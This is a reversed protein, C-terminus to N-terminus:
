KCPLYVDRQKHILPCGGLSPCLLECSTRPGKVFFQSIRKFEKVLLGVAERERLSNSFLDSWIGSHVLRKTLHTSTERHTFLQVDAWLHAFFNAPHGRDRPFFSQFSRNWKRSLIDMEWREKWCLIVSLAHGSTSTSM